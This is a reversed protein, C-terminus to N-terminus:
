AAQQEPNLMAIAEERIEALIKLQATLTKFITPDPEVRISKSGIEPHYFFLDCWERETVMLQGQVQIFYDTPCKKNRIDWLCTMFKPKQPCKIELLGDKNILSDPSCGLTKKDDTIFGVEQVAGGESFAYIDRAEPELDKGRQMAFMTPTPDIEYGADKDAALEVAFQTVTKLASAKGTPTVLRSFDSATPIGIRLAYWEPTGQEVDHVIM